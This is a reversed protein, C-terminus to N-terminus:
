VPLSRNLCGYQRLAEIWAEEYDVAEGPSHQFSTIISVVGETIDPNEKLHLITPLMYHDPHIDEAVLLRNITYQHHYMRKKVYETRGIYFRHGFNIRYIVHRKHLDEAKIVITIGM